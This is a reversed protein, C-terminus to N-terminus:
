AIVGETPPALPDTLIVLAGTPEDAAAWIKSANLDVINSDDGIVASSTLADLTSRALKDGDPKQSHWYPADDRLLHANRGTRYHSKPRRFSFVMVARVQRIPEWAQAKAAETAAEVVDQRWPRVKKSSETLIVRGNRPNVFGKKSGQPAPTGTVRFQLASM